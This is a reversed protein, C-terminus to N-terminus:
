GAFEGEAGVQRLRVAGGTLVAGDRGLAVDDDEAGVAEAAANVSEANRRFVDLAKTMRGVCDTFDTFDIPTSLDGAALGEMRVVTGVYPDCILKKSGFALVVTTVFALAAITVATSAGIVGAGLLATAAMMSAGLFTYLCFLVDFKRRIPAKAKFWYLM